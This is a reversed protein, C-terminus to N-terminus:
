AHLRRLALRTRNGGAELLLEVLEACGPEVSDRIASSDSTGELSAKAELLCRAVPVNAYFSARFLPTSRMSGEGTGLNIDVEIDSHSLLIQCM